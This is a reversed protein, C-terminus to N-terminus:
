EGVAERFPVGRLLEGLQHIPASGRGADVIGNDRLLERAQRLVEGSPEGAEIRQILHEVLALHLDRFRAEVDPSDTM